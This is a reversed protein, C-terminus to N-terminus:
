EPPSYESFVSDTIQLSNAENTKGVAYNLKQFSHMLVATGNPDSQPTQLFHVYVINENKKHGLNRLTNEEEIDETPYMTLQTQKFSYCSQGQENFELFRFDTDYRLASEDRLLPNRHQAIQTGADESEGDLVNKSINFPDLAFALTRTFFVFTEIGDLFGDNDTDPNRPNAVMPMGEPPSRNVVYSEECQTLLDFDDDSRNSCSPLFEGFILKRWHFYDGFGGGFSFRNRPDFGLDQMNIEDKDCLGDADSDSDIEGNLCYGANLNYVLLNKIFWPEVSPKIDLSNFDWNLGNNFNVFKGNGETAMEELLMAAELGNDGYYATSLHLRHRGTVAEKLSKIAEMIQFKGAAIQSGCGTASAGIDTPCGDSVFFLMYVNSEEGEIGALQLDAVVAQRAETLAALYPTAGQDPGRLRLIANEMDVPNASFEGVQTGIFPTAGDNHFEIMSWETNADTKKSNWFAEIGGARLQAGPDTSGNSGSKDMIFLYKVKSSYAKPVQTCLAGKSNLQVLPFQAEIRQLTIKAGGCHVLLAGLCIYILGRMRGGIVM